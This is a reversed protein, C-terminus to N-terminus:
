RLYYRRERRRFAEDGGELIRRVARNTEEDELSGPLYTLVGDRNEAIIVQEADANVVLNANHTVLIV